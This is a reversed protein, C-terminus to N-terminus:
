EKKKLHFCLGNYLPFQLRWEVLPQDLISIKKEPHGEGPMGFHKYNRSFVIMSADRHCLDREKGACTDQRKPAPTSTGCLMPTHAETTKALHIWASRIEDEECSLPEWTEDTIAFYPKLSEYDERGRQSGTKWLKTSNCVLAKNAFVFSTHALGKYALISFTRNSFSSIRDKGKPEM